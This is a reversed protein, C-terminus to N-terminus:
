NSSIGYREMIEETFIVAGQENLHSSDSFMENEYRPIEMEVRIKPYLDGLSRMLLTFDKKFKLQLMDHSVANMPAQLVLVEVDNDLCLEVTRQLYNRILVADGTEPLSEYFAEYNPADFGNEADSFSTFGRTQNMRSLLERNTSLRGFFRANILAPLYVHPLRLRNSLLTVFGEESITESQADRGKRMVEATEAISLENFYVTRNWFNDMVSYHFPAYVMICRKPAPHHKLYNKLYYYNEIATAGGVALNVCSDGILEPKLDAMARSDGLILTDYDTTGDIVQHTYVRAPYEEDMYCLPAFTTFLIVALFPLAALICKAFFVVKQKM